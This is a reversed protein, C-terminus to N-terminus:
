VHARGIQHPKEKIQEELDEDKNFQENKINLKTQNSKEQKKDVVVLPEKM